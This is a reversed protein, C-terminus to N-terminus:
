TLGRGSPTLRCYPMLFSVQQGPVPTTWSEAFPASISNLVVNVQQLVQSTNTIAQNATAQAADAKNKVGLFGGIFDAVGGIIGFIGQTLFGLFGGSGWLNTQGKTFNTVTTAKMKNRIGAETEDSGFRTGIM